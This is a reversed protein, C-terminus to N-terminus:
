ALSLTIFNERSDISWEREGERGGGRRGGGRRKEERGRM